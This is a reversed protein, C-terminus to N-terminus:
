VEEIEVDKLEFDQAVLRDTNIKTYLPNGEFTIEELNTLLLLYQVDAENALCNNAVYLKKLQKLSKIFELSKIKNNELSLFNLNDNEIFEEVNLTEIENYDLILSELTSCHNIERINQLSNNNLFLHKIVPLKQESINILSKICNHDLFLTHLKPFICKNKEYDSGNFTELCNYSLCLTHLYKFSHLGWLYTIQNKSLDLSELQPLIEASIDVKSLSCDVLSLQTINTLRDTEYMTNLVYKDFKNGFAYRAESIDSKKIYEGSIYEINSLHFIIFKKHLADTCIPNNCLDIIRLTQWTKVNNIQRLNRIQNNGCYFEQLTYFSGMSELSTILNNTLDLYKLVPFNEQTFDDLVSIFNSGLNLKVLYKLPKAFSFAHLLCCTACLEQVNKAKRLISSAAFFNQSVHIYRAQEINKEELLKMQERYKLTTHKLYILKNHWKNNLKCMNFACPFYNQPLKLPDCKCNNIFQLKPLYMHILYEVLQPQTVDEFPNNCIKLKYMNPISVTFTTISQFCYMLSNWSIDLEKLAPLIEEIHLLKINNASVNLIQINKMFRSNPFENLQNFSIDFERLNPLDLDKDISNINQGSICIETLNNMKEDIDIYQTINSKSLCITTTRNTSHIATSIKHGCEDKLENLIYEYEIVFIPSKINRNTLKLIHCKENSNNWYHTYKTHLCDHVNDVKETSDYTPTQLLVCVRRKEYTNCPRSTDESDKISSMRNLWDFDAAALCNTVILEEELLLDTHFVNFPWKQIHTVGPSTLIKLIMSCEDSQMSKAKYINIEDIEKNCVKTVKYLRLDTIGIGDKITSCLSALLFQKFFQIIKNELTTNYEIFKINGSNNMNILMQQQLIKSQIITIEKMEKLQKRNLKTQLIINELEDYAKDNLYSQNNKIFCLHNGALNLDRLESKKCSIKNIRTLKNDALNLEQLWTLMDLNELDTVNNRSLYLTILHSCVELNPICSIENSYLYLKRLLCNEKFFPVEKFSDLQLKPYKM